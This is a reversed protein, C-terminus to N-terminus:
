EKASMLMFRVYARMWLFPHRVFAIGSFDYSHRVFFLHADILKQIM